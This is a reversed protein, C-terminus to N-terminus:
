GRSALLDARSSEAFRIVDNRLILTRRRVKRRVLDGSALLLFVTRSSVGLLHAAESISVLLKPVPSSNDPEQQSKENMYKPKTM